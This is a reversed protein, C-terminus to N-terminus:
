GRRLRETAEGDISLGAELEETIVVGYVDRAAQVSVKHELVDHLVREPERGRPDGFGGGASDIGVLRDGPEITIQGVAPLDERTGDARLIAMSSGPGAHGGHVGRAETEHTDGSWIVTMPGGRTGLVVEASPAGRRRGAGGSDPRLRLSEFQLPYKQEDIEVSDRYLVGGTVPLAWTIWGDHGFSAPGSNNGVILQNVYSSGSRWDVGSIVAYGIGMGSGGEAVGLMPGGSEFARQTINVLRDAVNTTAMSASAPHRPIGVVCNERLKVTIRRFSGHNRPVGPGLNNFIGLLVNCTSTVETLNLGAPICDINDRLDAEIRGAEADVDLVLNIPVPPHAGFSDHQGSSEYRGSPLQGIAHAMRRESYDFWEAVFAKITDRGYRAVLDKLRQEASRCAGLAALYDGYWQEPVRIRSRCMRIIDAVDERDRQIQVCPFILAGEDYVDKAFPMYTTPLSNGIDAQHAKAVATFLHEGDVFVPVLITHEAPHDCGVYPDNDLFADGDRFDPHCRKMEASQLHSGFVHNPVGDVAALLEDDGTVISCSFDRAVNIVSSRASRLLTSTMERVIADFRNALVAMLAPDIAEVADPTTAHAEM